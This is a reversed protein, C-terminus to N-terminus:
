NPEAIINIFNDIQQIFVFFSSGVINSSTWSGKLEQNIEKKLTFVELVSDYQLSLKGNDGTLILLDKKSPVDELWLKLSFSSDISFGESFWVRTGDTADIKENNIFQSGDTEGIIQRVFWSLEIGANQINKGTLNVSMKPRYYFVNFLILGSTGVLGKSSTAIFEIYYQEDTQLNSFFQEVPLTTKLTSSDILVKKDNYLNVIYNRLSVDEAQMYSATFVYSFSNVTGIPNVTITPRSSTQFIEADSTQTVDSQNWITVIIKYESGNTLAGIPILHKLAFSAIKNSTWVLSNDFNSLIDIKFATQIDGSVSWSVENLENGDITRGRLSINFPKQIM